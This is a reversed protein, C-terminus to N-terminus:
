STTYKFSHITTLPFDKYTYISNLQNRQDLMESFTVTRQFYGGAGFYSNPLLAQKSTTCTRFLQKNQLLREESAIGISFFYKDKLLLHDFFTSTALFYNNPFLLQELCSHTRSFSKKLFILQKLSTAARMEIYDNSNQFHLRKLLLNTKRYSTNQFVSFSLASTFTSAQM